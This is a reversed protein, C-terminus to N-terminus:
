FRKGCLIQIVLDRDTGVRIDVGLGAVIDVQGMLHRVAHVGEPQDVIQAHALELSQEIGLVELEGAAIDFGIQVARSFVQGGAEAVFYEQQGVLVSAGVPSRSYGRVGLVLDEIGGLYKGAACAGDADRAAPVVIRDAGLLIM